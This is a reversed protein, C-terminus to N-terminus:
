LICRPAVESEILPLQPSSDQSQLKSFAEPSFFCPVFYACLHMCFSISYAVWATRCLQATTTGRVLRVEVRSLCNYLYCYQSFPSLVVICYFSHLMFNFLDLQGGDFFTVAVIRQDIQKVM